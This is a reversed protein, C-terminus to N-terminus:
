QRILTQIIKYINTREGGIIKAVSSAPKPGYQYLTLFIQAQTFSLGIQKLLEYISTDMIVIM